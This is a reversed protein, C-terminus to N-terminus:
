NFFDKVFPRKCLNKYRFHLESFDNCVEHSKFFCKPDNRYMYNYDKLYNPAGNRTIDIFETLGKKKYLPNLYNNCNIM